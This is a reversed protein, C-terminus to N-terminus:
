RLRRQALANFYADLLGNRLNGVDDVDRIVLGAGVRVVLLGLLGLLGAAEPAVGRRTGRRRRTHPWRELTRAGNRATAAVHVASHM